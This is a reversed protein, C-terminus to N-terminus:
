ATQIASSRILELMARNNPSAAVKLSRWPLSGAAGAVAVSLCFADIDKACATLNEKNLLEAALAASRPSFFVVGGVDGQKIARILEDSLLTEAVADYTVLSHVPIDRAALLSPLDIRTEEGSLYLLSTNPKVIDAIRAALLMVDGGGEVITSFGINRAAEATSEGVCYIPLNHWDEPLNHPLAHRSTLIIGEPKTGFDAIARPAIRMVPAIITALALEAALSESDEQPRTLWIKKM